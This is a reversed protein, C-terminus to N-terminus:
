RRATRRPPSPRWPAPLAMAHSPTSWSSSTATSSSGASPRRRHYLSLSTLFPSTGAVQLRYRSLAKEAGRKAGREVCSKVQKARDEVDTCRFKHAKDHQFRADRQAWLGTTIPGYCDECLHYDACTTCKYMLGHNIENYCSHLAFRTAFPINMVNSRRKRRSLSLSTM